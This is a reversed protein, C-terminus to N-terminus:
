NKAAFNVRQWVFYIPIGLLVIGLGMLSNYPKQWILNVTFASMCVIYIIPLVPYGFARIPREIHPQKIRLVILGIITLTYFIIVVFIVYDLLDNYKGSLCLVSCWAFQVWLAFAPAGKSNRTTMKKFFLGDIAMAEYLRAGSLLLGNNCGFCSVLIALAMVATGITGFSINMVATAVRDDTAHQIGREAITAAAADGWLPLVCLYAINALLYLVTVGLVGWFLSLPVNRRPNEMEAAIYTVNNWADSSFLSGVLAVGLASLLAGLTWDTKTFIGNIFTGHSIDWFHSFNQAVADSNRFIFIGGVILFLLTGAKILTLVRQVLGGYQIGQANIFTLLFLSGIGLLQAASVSFNGIHLLVNTTAFFPFLVATFKAFAVAIAAITGSQIVFFVSWGYLFAVFPSYIEKLYQYQGGSRPYIAALETYSLAAILTLSGTVVWALLLLLPNGLVRSMDAAVIFIGSGIMSGMVLLIGTTLSLRKQEM